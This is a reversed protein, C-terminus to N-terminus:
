GAVTFGEEFVDHFIELLKYYVQIVYACIECSLVIVLGIMTISILGYQM